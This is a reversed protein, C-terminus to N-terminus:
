LYSKSKNQYAHYVFFMESLDNQPFGKRMIESEIFSTTAFSWCTGTNGQSIVPTHELVTKKTFKSEEIQAQASFDLVILSLLLAFFIRIM